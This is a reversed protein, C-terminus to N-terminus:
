KVIQLLACLIPAIHPFPVFVGSLQAIGPNIESFNSDFYM